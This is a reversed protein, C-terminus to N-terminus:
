QTGVAELDLMWIEHRPESHAISRTTSFLLYRGDPTIEPMIDDGLYNTVQLLRGGDLTLEWIDWNGARNSEFFIRGDPHWCPRRHEFEDTLQFENESVRLWVQSRGDRDNREFLIKDPTSGIAAQRGLTLRASKTGTRTMTQIAFEGPVGQGSLSYAITDGNPSVIPAYAGCMEGSFCGELNAFTVQTYGRADTRKYWVNLNPERGRSSAFFLGRGDVDWSPSWDFSRDRRQTVPTGHAAFEIRGSKENRTGPRSLIESGGDPLIHVYALELDRSLAPMMTSGIESAVLIANLRGPPNPVVSFRTTAETVGIAQGFDPQSIRDFDATPYYHARVRVYYTAGAALLKGPSLHITGVDDETGPRGDPGRNMRLSDRHSVVISAVVQKFEWDTSIELQYYISEHDPAVVRIEPSLSPVETGEALLIEPKQMDVIVRSALVALRREDYVYLLYRSRFEMRSPVWTNDRYLRLDEMVRPSGTQDDSEKVLIIRYVAGPRHPWQFTPDLRHQISEVPAPPEGRDWPPDDIDIGRVAQDDSKRLIQWAFVALALAVGGAALALWRQRGSDRRTLAAAPQAIAAGQERPLTERLAADDSSPQQVCSQLRALAVVVDTMSQPRADPSKELMRHVFQALESGVGPARERLPAPSDNMHASIVRGVGDYVFPPAGSLAHYLICGLSYIDARHDVTRAGECQEPSMYAPTGIIAGTRTETGEGADMLKAIGFDLVKSRAGGPVADDPVIFINDPKLDRHVVNVEHAKTLASAVHGMLALATNTPLRGRKSLRDALSEGRLLEMVLYASGDPARGIDFVEVIAPHNIRSAAKAENFFRRVMSENASLEPRLLKIAVRKEMTSHRAAYVVGMGGRGIPAGLEYNGLKTCETAELTDDAGPAGGGAHDEGM